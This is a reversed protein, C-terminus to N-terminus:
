HTAISQSQSTIVCVCSQSNPLCQKRETIEVYWTISSISVNSLRSAVCCALLFGTLGLVLSTDKRSKLFLGGDIAVALWASDRLEGWLLSSSILQVVSESFSRIMDDACEMSKYFETSDNTFNGFHSLIIIFLLASNATYDLYSILMISMDFYPLFWLALIGWSKLLTLLM